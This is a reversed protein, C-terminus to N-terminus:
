KMIKHPVCVCLFAHACVVVVCMCVCFCFLFFSVAAMCVYGNGGLSGASPHM